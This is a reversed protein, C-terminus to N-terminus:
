NGRRERFYKMRTVASSSRATFWREKLDPKGVVRNLTDGDACGSISPTGGKEFM